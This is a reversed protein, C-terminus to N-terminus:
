EPQIGAEKIRRGWNDYQTTVIEGLEEPTSAKLEASLQVFREKNEEKAAIKQMESSLLNVVPRPMGAPGFMGMWSAIDFGDLGPTEAVAPVGPVLPSRTTKAVGLVRLKGAKILSVASALAVFNLNIEGTLIDAVALENTKYPVEMGEIGTRRFMSACGVQASTNGYSCRLKGPNAKGWSILEQVSKVPLRPDVVLVSTFTIMYSVPTFDKIPHYNLKKFLFPNASMATNSGVFLTHGDPASRAAAEAGIQGSAGPRPEVVFPQKLAIRLQDAYHRAVIDAASGAGFSIIIRVPKSPYAQALVSGPLIAASAAALTALLANRFPLIALSSSRHM